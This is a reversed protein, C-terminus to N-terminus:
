KRYDMSPNRFINPNSHLRRRCMDRHLIAGEHDNKYGLCEVYSEIAKDINDRRYFSMGRQFLADALQKSIDSTNMMEPRELLASKFFAIAYEYNNRLYHCSGKIALLDGNRNNIELGKEVEILAQDLRHHELCTFAKEVCQRLEFVLHNNKLWEVTHEKPIRLHSMGALYSNRDVDIIKLENVLYNTSNINHFGNRSHLHDAYNKGTISRCTVPSDIEERSQQQEAYVKLIRVFADKEVLGYEVQPGVSSTTSSSAVSPQYSSKSTVLNAQPDRLHKRIREYFKEVDSNM